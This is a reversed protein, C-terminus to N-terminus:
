RLKKSRFMCLSLGKPGYGYKHPDCSITTVGPVRFDYVHALPFCLEEIFPNIYSGLCCDSHCGIGWSQALEAIKEVPDYNGFAFEPSSAVLCVTNSDIARKFGEYDAFFTDKMM